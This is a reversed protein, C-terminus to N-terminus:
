LVIEWISILSGFVAWGYLGVIFTGLSISIIGPLLRSIWEARLIARNRYNNAAFLLDKALVRQSRPTSSGPSSLTDLLFPPIGMAEAGMPDIHQGSEILAAAHDCFHRLLPQSSSAASHRLAEPWSVGYETQIALFSALRSTDIDRLLGRLGPVLWALSLASAVGTRVRLVVAYVLTLSLALLPIGAGWYPLTENLFFIFRVPLSPAVQIDTFLAKIPPVCFYATGIAMLYGMVLFTIPYITARRLMEQLEILITTLENMRMLIVELQGGRLGTTVLVRYFAPAPPDLQELAEGLPKGQEVKQSLQLLASSLRGSLGNSSDRLGLDLSVGSRVICILEENLSKIELLTLPTPPLVQHLSRFNWPVDLRRPALAM